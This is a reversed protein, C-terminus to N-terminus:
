PELTSCLVANVEVCVVPLKHEVGSATRKLTSYVSPIDVDDAQILLCRINCITLM